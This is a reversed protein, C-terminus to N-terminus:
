PLRHIQTYICAILQKKLIMFDTMKLFLHFCKVFLELTFDFCCAVIALQMSPHNLTSGFLFM